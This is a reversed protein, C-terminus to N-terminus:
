PNRVSEALAKTIATIEAEIDRESAPVFSDGDPTFEALYATRFYDAPTGAPHYEVLAGYGVAVNAALAERLEVLSAPRVYEDTDIDVLFLRTSLKSV